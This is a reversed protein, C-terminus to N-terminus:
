GFWVKLAARAEAPLDEVPADSAWGVYGDPRVLVAEAPAAGSRVQTAVVSVYDDGLDSLAGSPTFDFLVPRGSQLAAGVRSVSGTLALDPMWRGLLPHPPLQDAFTTYVADVGAMLNAIRRLNAEETLFETMLERLATVNDGPELLQMQTRTHMLVRSGLPMRESEYSDLLGAPAWGHVEAALKWGLNVADQMGLNLGPGGVGSHVHAADGVLFIRGARYHSAQRSNVGPRRRIGKPSGGSYASLGLPTGLVRSVAASLENLSIPGEPGPDPQNWELATIRYVGPQFAGYAFVGTPTRHFAFPALTGMGPVALGGPTVFSPDVAVSGQRSVFREDTIGPFDIGAAQRVLSKGGDAGVLFRARIEYDGAPGRVALHVDDLSPSVSVVEHGRRVQVGLSTAYGSLLEEMRKQPIPLMYLPNDPLRHLPLGLGGFQFGPAPRPPGTQGSFQEYLGRYDLMQVVRGVLGNAKPIDSPEALRELVVPRVGARALEAALLLGNPGGGVIVVDITTM